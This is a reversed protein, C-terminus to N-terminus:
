KVELLEIEFTLMSGGPIPGSDMMGYALDNAIWFTAKSGEKLLQVGETWGPIVRNLPFEVPKGRSYSSDFETGDLLTGKYHVKVVNTATPSKGTGEKTIKYQLGSATTKVGEKKANEALFKVGAELNAKVAPPAEQVMKADMVAKLGAFGEKIQMKTFKPEKGSAADKIGDLLVDYDIIGDLGKLSEGMQQGIGYYAHQLKTMTPKMAKEAIDVPNTAAAAPQTTATPQTSAKTDAKAHDHGTHDEEGCAVTCAMCLTLM